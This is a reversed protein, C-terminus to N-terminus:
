LAEGGDPFSAWSCGIWMTRFQSVPHNEPLTPKSFSLFPNSPLKVTTNFTSSIYPTSVPWLSLLFSSDVVTIFYVPKVTEWKRSPLRHRGDRVKMARGKASSKGFLSPGMMCGPRQM